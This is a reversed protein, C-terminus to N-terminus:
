AGRSKILLLMNNEDRYATMYEGMCDVQWSEGLINKINKYSDGLYKKFNIPAENLKNRSVVTEMIGYDQIEFDLAGCLGNMEIYNEYVNVKTTTDDPLWSEVLEKVKEALEFQIDDLAVLHTDDLGRISFEWNEISTLSSLERCMAAINEATKNNMRMEVFVMYYGTQDPAASVETDLLDVHSKQLFRNVDNAVDKSNAYFGIVIAADDIKSEYEDISVRNNMM